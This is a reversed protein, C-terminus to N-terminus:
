ILNTNLVLFKLPTKFLDSSLFLIVRDNGIIKTFVARSVRKGFMQKCTLFDSQPICGAHQQALCQLSGQPLIGVSSSHRKLHRRPRNLSFNSLKKLLNLVDSFFLYVSRSESPNEKM